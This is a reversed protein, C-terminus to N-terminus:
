LLKKRHLPPVLCLSTRSWVVHLSSYIHLQEKTHCLDDVARAADGLVYAAFMFSKGIMISVALVFTFHFLLM